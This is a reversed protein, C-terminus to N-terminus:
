PTPRLFATENARVFATRKARLDDAEAVFREDLPELQSHEYSESFAELTGVADLRERMGAKAEGQQLAARFTGATRKAGIRDLALATPALLESPLNWFYQNFGGNFVEDELIITLYVDRTALAEQQLVDAQFLGSTRMQEAVYWSIAFSLDEDTISRLTTADLATPRPLADSQRRLEALQEQVEPPFGEFANANPLPDPHHSSPM